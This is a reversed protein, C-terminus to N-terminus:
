AADSPRTQKDQASRHLNDPKEFGAHKGVHGVYSTGNIWREPFKRNGSGSISRSMTRPVIRRDSQYYETPERLSRWLRRGTHVDKRRTSEGASGVLSLWGGTGRM